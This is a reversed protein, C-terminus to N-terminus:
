MRTHIRSTHWYSQMNAVASIFCLPPFQSLSLLTNLLFSLFDLQAAARPLYRCTHWRCRRRRPTYPRCPARGLYWSLHLASPCHTQSHPNPTSVPGALAHSGHQSPKPPNVDGERSGEGATSGPGPHSHPGSRRPPGPSNAAGRRSQQGDM